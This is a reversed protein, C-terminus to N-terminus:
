KNYNAKITPMKGDYGITVPCLKEIDRTKTYTTGDLNISEVTVVKNRDLDKIQQTKVEMRWAEPIIWFQAGEKRYNGINGLERSPAESNPDHIKVRGAADIGYALIFHGISTWNGKRMASIVMRDKKLATIAEDPSDTRKCDIRYKKLYPVFYGWYTGDYPSLYGKEVSWAAAQKPTVSKDRLTAVVMAACTPGCGDTGITENPNGTVTYPIGAWKPNTQEYEVPKDM